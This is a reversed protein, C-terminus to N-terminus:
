PSSNQLLTKNYPNPKAQKTRSDPRFTKSFLFFFDQRPKAPDQDHQPNFNSSLQFSLFFSLFPFRSPSLIHQECCIPLNCLAFLFILPPLNGGGRKYSPCSTALQCTLMKVTCFLQVMPISPPIQTPQKNHTYQQGTDMPDM